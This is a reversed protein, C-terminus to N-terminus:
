EALVSLIFTVDVGKGLAVCVKYDGVIKIDMKSVDKGEVDKIEVVKVQKGEWAGQPYREKLAEMIMKPDVGGFLNGEPGAKRKMQLAVGCIGGEDSSDEGCQQEEEGLSELMAEELLAKTMRAMELLEVEHEEKEQEM